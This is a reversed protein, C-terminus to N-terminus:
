ICLAEYIIDTVREQIGTNHRERTGAVNITSPNHEDLFARVDASSVNTKFVKFPKCNEQCLKITLASGRGIVDAFILTLDSSKVNMATRPPYSKTKLDIIGFDALEPTPGEETLFNLPAYGGTALGLKRAALLGGMDAGTQGGSIIKTINM